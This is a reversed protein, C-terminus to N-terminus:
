LQTTETKPAAKPVVHDVPSKVDQVLLNVCEMRCYQQMLNDAQEAHMDPDHHIGRDTLRIMDQLLVKQDQLSLGQTDPDDYPMEERCRCELETYLELVELTRAISLECMAKNWCLQRLCILWSDHCLLTGMLKFDNWVSKGEKRKNLEKFAELVIALVIKAVTSFVIVIYMMLFLQGAPGEMRVQEVALKEISFSLHFVYLISSGLSDFEKISTMVMHGCFAFGLCFVLLVVFSNILKHLSKTLAETINRFSDQFEMHHLLRIACAVMVIITFVDQMVAVSTNEKDYLYGLCGEVNTYYFSLSADLDTQAFVNPTVLSRATRM